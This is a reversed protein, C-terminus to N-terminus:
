LLMLKLMCTICFVKRLPSLFPKIAFSYVTWSGLALGGYQAAATWTLKQNADKYVQLVKAFFEDM